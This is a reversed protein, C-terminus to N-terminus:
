SRPVTRAADIFIAEAKDATCLHCKDSMFRPRTAPIFLFQVTSERVFTTIMADTIM